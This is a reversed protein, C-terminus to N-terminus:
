SEMMCVAAFSPALTYSPLRVADFLEGLPGQAPTDDLRVLAVRRIAALEPSRLTWRQWAQALDSNWNGRSPQAQVGVIRGKELQALVVRGREQLAFAAPRHQGVARGAISLASEVAILRHGGAQAASHLADLFDREIACALRMEGYPAADWTISWGHAVDGFLGAFHALAFRRAEDAGLLAESWPLMALQCWRNSVSVAIPLGAAAHGPAELWSGLAAVAGQWHGEPHNLAISVASDPFVHKGSRIALTIQEPALAVCLTKSSWLSAGSWLPINSRVPRKSFLKTLSV